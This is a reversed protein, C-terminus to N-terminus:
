ISENSQRKGSNHLFNLRKEAGSPRKRRFKNVRAIENKISQDIFKLIYENGHSKM